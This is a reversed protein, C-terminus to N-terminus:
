SSQEELLEEIFHKLKGSIKERIKQLVAQGESTIVYYRVKRRKGISKWKGEILKAEELKYLLTYVVSPCIKGDLISSLNKLLEYGYMPKKSLLWLILARFLGKITDEVIKFSM